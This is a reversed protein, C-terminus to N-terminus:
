KFYINFEKYKVLLGPGDVGKALCSEDLNYLDCAMRIREQLYSSILWPNSNKSILIPKTLNLSPNGLSFSLKDFILDFSIVYAKNNDLLSLLDLLEQFDIFHLWTIHSNNIFIIDTPNVNDDGILEDIFTIKTVSLPIIFSSLINVEKSNLYLIFIIVIISLIRIIYYEKNTPNINSLFTALIFVLTWILIQIVVLLGFKIYILTLILILIIIM